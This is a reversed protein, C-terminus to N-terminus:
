RRLQRAAVEVGRLDRIVVLQSCPPVQLDGSCLRVPWADAFGDKRAQELPQNM